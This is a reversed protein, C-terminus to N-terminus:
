FDSWRKRDSVRNNEAELEAEYKDQKIQQEKRQKDDASECLCM